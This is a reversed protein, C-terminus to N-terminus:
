PARLCSMMTWNRISVTSSEPKPPATPSASPMDSGNMIVLKAPMCVMMRRHDSMAAKPMEIRMPRMKPM